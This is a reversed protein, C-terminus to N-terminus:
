EDHIHTTLRVAWTVLTCATLAISLLGFYLALVGAGIYAESNIRAIFACMTTFIYTTFCLIALTKPIKSLKFLKIM